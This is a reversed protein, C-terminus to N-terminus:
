MFDWTSEISKKGAIDNLKTLNASPIKLMPFKVVSCMNCFDFNIHENKLLLDDFWARRNVWNYQDAVSEPSEKTQM